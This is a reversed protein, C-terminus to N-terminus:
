WDINLAKCKLCNGAKGPEPLPANCHNCQGAIRSLHYVTAKAAKLDRVHSHLKQIALMASGSRFLMVIEARVDQSIAFPLQWDAGCQPCLYPEPNIKHEGIEAAIVAKNELRRAKKAAEKIEDTHMWHEMNSHGRKGGSGGDTKGKINAM